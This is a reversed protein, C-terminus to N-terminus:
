LHADILGALEEIESQFHLDLDTRLLAAICLPDRSTTTYLRTDEDPFDLSGALAVTTGTPTREVRIYFGAFEFFM